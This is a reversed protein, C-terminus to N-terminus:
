MGVLLTPPKGPPETTVFRGALTPSMSEIGLNPHDAPSPFSLGSWYNEQRSFEISLPSNFIVSHSLMCVCSLTPPNSKRWVRRLM